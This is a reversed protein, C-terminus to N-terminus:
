KFRDSSYDYIYFLHFFNRYLMTEDRLHPGNAFRRRGGTPKETGLHLKTSKLITV